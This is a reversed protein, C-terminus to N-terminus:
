SLFRYSIDGSVTEIELSKNGKGEYSFNKRLSEEYINYDDMNGDVSLDVDGSVTEITIEDCKLNNINFDGSVSQAKFTDIITIKQSNFDGSVTDINLDRSFVDQLKMDGSVSEFEIEDCKVDKVKVDGSVTNICLDFMKDKPCYIHLYGQFGRGRLSFIKAFFTNVITSSDEEEEISIKNNSINVDLYIDDSSNYELWGNEEDTIEITVDYAKVDINIKSIGSFTRRELHQEHPIIENTTQKECISDALQEVSGLSAIISEESEGNDLHDNVIEEFYSLIEQSDKANRTELEKRLEEFYKELM